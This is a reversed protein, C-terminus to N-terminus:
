FLDSINYQNFTLLLYEVFSNKLEYYIVVIGIILIVVVISYMYVRGPNIDFIVYIGKMLRYFGWLAFLILLIHVYINVVNADLAKYLIIGVPILLVLPLLAWV